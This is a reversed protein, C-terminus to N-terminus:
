SILCVTELGKSKLAHLLPRQPTQKLDQLYSQKMYEFVTGTKERIAQKREANQKGLFQKGDYTTLDSNRGCYAVSWVPLGATRPSQPDYPDWAILRSLEVGYQKAHQPLGDTWRFLAIDSEFNVAWLIVRTDDEHEADINILFTTTRSLLCFMGIETTTLRSSVYCDSNEIDSIQNLIENKQASDLKTYDLFNASTVFFGESDSVSLWFGSSDKGSSASPVVGTPLKWRLGIRNTSM